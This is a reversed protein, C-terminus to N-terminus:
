GGAKVGGFLQNLCYNYDAPDTDKAVVNTLIAACAKSNLRPGTSRHQSWFYVSVGLVAVILNLVALKTARTKM